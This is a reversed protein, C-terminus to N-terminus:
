KLKKPDIGLLDALRRRDDASLDKVDRPKPLGATADMSKKIIAPMAEVLKPMMTQMRKVVAPDLMITMSKGAFASGAPTALFADIAALQAADFQNAYAEALGARMSPEESTFLVGMEKFMATTMIEMRREFAPDLIAMVQRVTADSKPMKAPDAGVSEALKRINIDFGQTAMQGVMASMSDGMMKSYTGDPLIKGAIRTAAELKPDAQALAPTALSLALAALLTKM